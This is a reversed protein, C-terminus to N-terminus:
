VVARRPPVGVAIEARGVEVVITALPVQVQVVVVWVRLPVLVVPEEGNALITFAGTYM